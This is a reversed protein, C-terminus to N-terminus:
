VIGDIRRLSEKLRTNGRRTQEQEERVMEVLSSAPSGIYVVVDPHAAQKKSGAPTRRALRCLMKGPKAKFKAM